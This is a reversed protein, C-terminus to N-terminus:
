AEAAIRRKMADLTDHLISDINKRQERSLTSPELPHGFEVVVRKRPTARLSGPFIVNQTGFLCVPIIPTGAFLAAHIGGRKFNDVGSGQYIHGEPFLILSRGKRLRKIMARFSAMEATHNKQEVFVAGSLKMWYSFIPIHSLVANAVFAAKAPLAAYIAPIDFPSMHNSVFLYTQVPDINERGRIDLRIQCLRCAKKAWREFTEFVYRDRFAGQPMFLSKPIRKCTRFTLHILRPLILRFDERLSARFLGWPPFISSEMIRAYRNENLPMTDLASQRQSARRNPFAHKAREHRHENAHRGTRNRIGPRISARTKHEM